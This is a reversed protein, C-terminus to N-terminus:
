QYIDEPHGDWGKLRKYRPRMRNFVGLAEKMTWYSEKCTKKEIYLGESYSESCHICNNNSWDISFTKEDFEEKTLNSRKVLVM